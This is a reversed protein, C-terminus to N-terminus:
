DDQALDQLEGDSLQRLYNAYQQESLCRILAAILDQCEIIDMEPSNYPDFSAELMYKADALAPSDKYEPTTM